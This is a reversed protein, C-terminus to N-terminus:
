DQVAPTVVSNQYAYPIAKHEVMVIFAKLGQNAQQHIDRIMRTGIRRRSGRMKTSPMMMKKHMMTMMIMMMIMMLLEADVNDDDGDDNIHDDDGDYVHDDDDGNTCGDEDNGHSSKIFICVGVVGFGAAFCTGTGM